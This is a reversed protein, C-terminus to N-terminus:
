NIVNKAYYCAIAVATTLNLSDIDEAQEIKITHNNLIEEPLGSAENGFLLSYPHEIKKLSSLKEAKQLAFPYYTHNPFMKLYDEFTDLYIFNVKFFSGMSARVVKPNFIDCAPRIIVLSKFNFANMTRLINGLNGMDSPNHLVILDDNLDVNTEYKDFVGICHDNEKESLKNFPAESIVVKDKSVLTTLKNYAGSNIANPHIYIVRIKDKKYKILEFTPYFGLTYSYDLNKKYQKIM